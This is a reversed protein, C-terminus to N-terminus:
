AFAMAQTGSALGSWGQIFWSVGDCNLVVRDGAVCTAALTLTTAPTGAVSDAATASNYSNVAKVANGVTAPQLIIGRICATTATIALTFGLTGRCVVTYSVGASSAVAPLNLVSNTLLVPVQIISGSQSVKLSYPNATAAVGASLTIVSSGLNTTQGLPSVSLSM